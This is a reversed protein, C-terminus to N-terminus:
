ETKEELWKEIEEDHCGILTYILQFEHDHRKAIRYYNISGETLKEFYELHFTDGLIELINDESELLISAKNFPLRFTLPNSVVAEEEMIILLDEEIVKVLELPVNNISKLYKIDNLTQIVQM